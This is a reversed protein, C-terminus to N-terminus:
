FFTVLKIGRSELQVCWIARTCLALQTGVKRTGQTRSFSKTTQFIAATSITMIM